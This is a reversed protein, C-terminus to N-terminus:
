PITRLSAPLLILGATKGESFIPIFLNLEFGIKGAAAGEIEFQSLYM